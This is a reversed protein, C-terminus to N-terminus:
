RLALQLLFTSETIRLRLGRRYECQSLGKCSNITAAATKCLRLRIIHRKSGPHTEDMLVYIYRKQLESGFEDVAPSVTTECLATLQNEPPSKLKWFIHFGRHGRPPVSVHFIAKAVNGERQVESAHYADRKSNAAWSAFGLHHVEACPKSSKGDIDSDPM